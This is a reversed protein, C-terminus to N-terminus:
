RQACLPALKAVAVVKGIEALEEPGTGKDLTEVLIRCRDSVWMVLRAQWWLGPDPWRVLVASTASMVRTRASKPDEVGETELLTDTSGTAGTCVRIMDSVTIRIHSKGRTYTAHASGEDTVAGRRWEGVSEGLAAALDTHALPQVIVGRVGSPPCIRNRADIGPPPPELLLRSARDPVPGLPRGKKTFWLDCATVIRSPERLATLRSRPLIWDYSAPPAKANDEGQWAYTFQIRVLLPDEVASEQISSRMCTGPTSHHPSHEETPDLKPRCAVLAVLAVLVFRVHPLHRLVQTSVLHKTRSLM